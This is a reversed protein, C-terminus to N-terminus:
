RYGLSQKFENRHELATSIGKIVALEPEEVVTVPIGLEETLWQDLEPLQALGGALLMGKDLVDGTLEPPVQSLLKQVLKLYQAAIEQVPLSFTAIPVNVEIPANSGAEQGMVLLQGEAGVTVPASWKLEEATHQSIIVGHRQKVAFQVRSDIYEGARDSTQSAVVSGLSIMAAEVVGAGLQFLLTGSADAIPVGAGIAAALPQAIVFVERAGLDYMLEVIAQQAAQTAGVPVSIMVVPSLLYQIGLIEQLWVRLLAKAISADYLRGRQVPQHLTIGKTVRGAMEAADRGVAIVKNNQDTAIVTPENIVMGKSDSWIRTFQTGFDIGILHTFKPLWSLRVM